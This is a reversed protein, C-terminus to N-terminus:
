AFKHFWRLLVHVLKVTVYYAGVLGIAVVIIGFAGSVFSSLLDTVGSQVGSDIVYAPTAFASGAMALTALTAGIYGALLKKNM